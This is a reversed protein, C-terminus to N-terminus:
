LNPDTKLIMNFFYDQIERPFDNINDLFYVLSYETLTRAPCNQCKSELQVINNGLTSPCNFRTVTTCKYVHFGFLCKLDQKSM